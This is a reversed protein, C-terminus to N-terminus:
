CMPKFKDVVRKWEEPFDRKMKRVVLRIQVQTPICTVPPLHLFYYYNYIILPINVIKSM